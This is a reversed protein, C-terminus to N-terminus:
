ARNPSLEKNQQEVTKLANTRAREKWREVLSDNCCFVIYLLSKVFNKTLIVYTLGSGRSEEPHFIIEVSKRM